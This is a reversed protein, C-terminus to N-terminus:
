LQQARFREAAALVAQAKALDFSNDTRVGTEMDVWFDKGLRSLEGLVPAVNEPGLGGAFGCFVNELGRPVRWGAPQIGTGRSADVLVHVRSRDAPVLGALFRHVLPATADHFQLIVAPVIDLARRYVELVQDDSFEPRRANINLQLRDADLLERPLDNALLQNFAKAGVLHVASNGRLRSEFFAQRWRQAPNRPAGENHPVYLLAWEVFPYRQSLAELATLETANDPGTLSVRTLRHACSGCSTM